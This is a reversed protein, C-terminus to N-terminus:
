VHARGIKEMEQCNQRVFLIVLNCLYHSVSNLLKQNKSLKPNLFSEIYDYCAHCRKRFERAQSLQFQKEKNSSVYEQFDPRAEGDLVCEVHYLNLPHKYGAKRKLLCPSGLFKQIAKETWGPRIELICQKTVMSEFNDEYPCDSYTDDLDRDYHMM